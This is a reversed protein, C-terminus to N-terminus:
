EFQFTIPLTFRVPVPHHNQLGPTWAPMERVVRAAAEETGYGLGKLVTVEGVSGDTQVVFSVFVKGSVQAALAAAPFRLHKQLYRQLAARGGVFDPMVEAFIVVEQKPPAAPRATDTSTGTAVGTGGTAGTTNEGGTSTPGVAGNDQPLTSSAPPTKVQEDPVVHTLIQTHPKVTLAPQAAAPPPLPKAEPLKFDGPQAHTEKPLTPQPRVAVEPWFYRVALPLLLLLLCAVVTIFLASSLHRQYDRRLQFAGYAQNRGEFVIDDLSGTLIIPTSM